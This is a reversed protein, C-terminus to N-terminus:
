KPVRGGRLSVRRQAEDFECLLENCAGAFVYATAKGGKFLGTEGFVELSWPQATGDCEVGTGGFGRIIFRGVRQELTAEVFAFAAGSCTITGSLTASGTRSDFRAIPDVTVEISPQQLQTEEVTLNLTGGPSGCCSGAMLYYTTGASASFVVASQLSLSTDDNCAVETLEGPESTYVSLTTDYDSGFTSALISTDDAVTLEYWVTAVSGFCSPDGPANTAESTDVSDHFPLTAIVAADAFDDNAPPAALAVSSTILLM